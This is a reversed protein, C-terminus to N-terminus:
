PIVRMPGSPTLVWDLREDGASHPVAGVRQEDFALGIAVVPKRARLDALTRDYFGGGYGLRYGSADFALLPVLLVDPVVVPASPLPEEICWVAATTPDGPRWSRFMLARGKGQMVPLCLAHGRGLLMMALPVPSIEDGIASFASVISQPAVSAFDLGHLALQRSAATGLRASASARALRAAARAQAKAESLEM